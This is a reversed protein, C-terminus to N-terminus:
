FHNVAQWYHSHNKSTKFKSLTLQMHQGNWHSIAEKFEQITNSPSALVSIHLLLVGIFIKRVVM